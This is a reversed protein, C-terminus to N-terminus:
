PAGVLFANLEMPGSALSFVRNTGSDTAAVIQGTVLNKVTKGAQNPLTITLTAATHARHAVGVYTGQSTAYTRVKTNTNPATVVTGPVAPLARFAQAFRRHADAFGRGYTYSTQTLTRVDGHFYSLLETAMSFPAGGPLVNNAEHRPNVVSRGAQEDYTICSSVALGDTTTFYSMYDPRNAYCAYQPVPAFIQIGAAAPIRYLEPRMAYDPRVTQPWSTTGCVAFNGTLMANIYEASTYGARATRDAAWIAPQNPKQYWTKTFDWANIDPGMMSFNDQDWNYYYLTLDPRYTKLLDKVRVHFDRRKKQWWTSYSAAITANGEPATNSAWRALQATSYGTPKTTGTDNCFMTIDAPGYSVPMRDCRIRWLAGTMQPNTAAHPAIFSDLYTKMDQYTSESLLNACSTATFAFRSPVALVGNQNIAKAAEPLSLSGGYEFRPIYNIGSNRTANLFKEHITPEGALAPGAPNTAPNVVKYGGKDIGYSEYGNCVGGYNAKSWKIGTIPSLASYGMLRAYNVVDPPNMEAEHEWDIMLTRQPLGAPPLTIAPANAVPDIEYLKITAVAIGGSYPRQYGPGGGLAQTDHFCVWVGNRPDADGAGGTGLSKDGLPFIMDYQKWVTPSSNLPWPDYPDTSSIGNKWGVDYYNDGAQVGLTCYRPKDEPYEVRLLYCKGPTLTGRGIRYSFFSWKPERASKGAITTMTVNAPLGPSRYYALNEDGSIQGQLYPHVETNLSTSCDITDVLKLNGYPTSEYTTTLPPLQMTDRAYFSLRDLAQTTTGSLAVGSVADKVVHESRIRSALYIKRASAGSISAVGRVISDEGLTLPTTGTQILNNAFDRITYTLNAAGSGGSLTSVPFRYVLEFPQAKQGASMDYAQGNVGLGTIPKESAITGGVNRAMIQHPELIATYTGSTLGNKGPGGNVSNTAWLRIAITNNGGYIIGSSVSYKRDTLNRYMQYGKMGGIRVGNFWVDDGNDPFNALNLQLPSGASTAPIFLTQRFWVYNAKTAFSVGQSELTQKSLKTGWTIDSFAPDHWGSSVGIDTPDEKFKWSTSLTLTVATAPGAMLSLLALSCLLNKWGRSLAAPRVSTSPTNRPPSPKM